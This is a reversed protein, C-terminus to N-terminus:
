AVLTDPEVRAGPELRAGAAIRAGHAVVAGLVRAGAGIAADDAVISDLVQAGAGVHVREWLVSGRVLAGAAVISGAGIVAPGEIQAGGAIAAGAGVLAPATVRAGAAVQADHTLVGSAPWDAPLRAPLAGALLELNVRLLAEPNGVDRWYHSGRFGFIAGGTAALRPFLEDEVRNARTADLQAIASPEFLWTGANVLRSPAQARPPKEVFRTVREDADLVVVGFGSPDDVEHLAISVAAGRARHAAAFASVDLDTIIDGNCVLVPENWGGAISAIAGGSGLPQEEYAYDLAVALAAGDGFADRVAASLRTRTLALTVATVGHARLQLLLHELLPRGLVPVLQKPTRWTLPRLRTGEGGVLVIARM